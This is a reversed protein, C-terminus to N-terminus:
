AAKRRVLMFLAVAVGALMAAALAWQIPGNGDSLAGLGAAASAIGGIATPDKLMDGLTAGFTEAGGAKGGEQTEMGSAIFHAQKSDGLAMQTAAAQVDRVRNGWGKGFTSWTRLRQLWALRSECLAKVVDAANRKQVAEVTIVGIQGDQAAGVIAQLFKAARAPGSNVAFDFVAYDVGSPLIDGQIVNWYQQRYISKLEDDTIDKVSRSPLGQKSRWANYTRWTVGKNTEGGPDSPHNAYGGEHRLVMALSQDFNKKM